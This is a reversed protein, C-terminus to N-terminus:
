FADRLSVYATALTRDARELRATDQRVLNASRKLKKM